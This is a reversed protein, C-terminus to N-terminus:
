SSRLSSSDTHVKERIRQQHYNRSPASGLQSSAHEMETIRRKVSDEKIAEDLSKDLDELTIKRCQVQQQTDHTNKMM